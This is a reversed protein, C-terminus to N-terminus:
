KAGIQLSAGVQLLLHQPDHLKAAAISSEVGSSVIRQGLRSFEHARDLMPLPSRAPHGSSTANRLSNMGAFSSRLNAALHPSVRANDAKGQLHDPYQASQGAALEPAL